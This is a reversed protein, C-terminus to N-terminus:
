STDCVFVLIHTVLGRDSLDGLFRPSSIRVGKVPTLWGIVLETVM